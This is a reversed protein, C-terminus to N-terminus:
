NRSNVLMSNLVEKPYKDGYRSNILHSVRKELSIINIDLKYREDNNSIKDKKQKLNNIAGEIYAIRLLSTLGENNLQPTGQNKIVGRFQEGTKKFCNQLELDSILAITHM